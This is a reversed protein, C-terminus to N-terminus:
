LGKEAMHALFADHQYAPIASILNRGYFGKLREFDWAMVNLVFTEARPTYHKWWPGAYKSPGLNPIAVDGMPFPLKKLDTELRELRLYHDIKPVTQWYYNLTSWWWWPSDMLLTEDVTTADFSTNKILASLGKGINCSIDLGQHHYQWWSLVRRFPNRVAMIWTYDHWCPDPDIKHSYSGPTLESDPFIPQYGAPADRGEFLSALTRMGCRPPLVLVAKLNRSVIV